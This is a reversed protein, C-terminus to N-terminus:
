TARRHSISIVKQDYRVGYRTEGDKYALVVDYAGLGDPLCVLNDWGDAALQDVRQRAETYHPQDGNVAAVVSIKFPPDVKLM